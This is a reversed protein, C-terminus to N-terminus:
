FFTTLSWMTTVFTTMSKPLNYNGLTGPFIREIYFKQISKLKVVFIRHEDNKEYNDDDFLKSKLKPDIRKIKKKRIKCHLIGM